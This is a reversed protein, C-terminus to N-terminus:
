SARNLVKLVAAIALAHLRKSKEINLHGITPDIKVVDINDLKGKFGPAPKLALGNDKSEYFNIVHAVNPPVVTESVADFNVILSVPVGKDALAQAIDLTADAGFSHGMLIIPATNRNTHYAAVIHNAIDSWGAYSTVVSNTVGKAHLQDNLDDLGLSFVNALGRMLIITGRPSKSAAHSTAASATTLLAALGAIAAAVGVGRLLKMM